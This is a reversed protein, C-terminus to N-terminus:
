TPVAPLRFVTERRYARVAQEGFQAALMVVCAVVAAIAHQLRALAFNAERHRKVSNYADYWALSQTAKATHWGLFPVVEPIEPYRLLKVMYQDLRM